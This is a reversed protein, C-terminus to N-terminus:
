KLSVLGDDPRRDGLHLYHIWDIIDNSGPEPYMGPISPTEPINQVSYIEPTMTEAYIELVAFTVLIQLTWGVGIFRRAITTITYYLTNNTYYFWDQHYLSIIQFSSMNNWILISMLYNYKEFTWNSDIAVM